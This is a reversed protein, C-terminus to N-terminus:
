FPLRLARRLLPSQQVPFVQGSWYAGDGRGYTGDHRFLSVRALPDAFVFESAPIVIGASYGRLIIRATSAQKTVTKVNASLARSSWGSNPAYNATYWRDTNGFFDDALSDAPAFNNSVDGDADFAFGIEYLNTPDELVLPAATEFFLLLVPGSPPPAKRDLCLTTTGNPGAGCPFNAAFTAGSLTARAYYVIQATVPPDPLKPAVSSDPHLTATLPVQYCQPAPQATGLVDALLPALSGNGGALLAACRDIPSPSVNQCSAASCGQACCIGSCDPPYQFAPVSADCVAKNQQLAQVCRYAARSDYCPCNPLVGNVLITGFSRECTTTSTYMGCATLSKCTQASFQQPFADQRLGRDGDCLFGCLLLASSLAIVSSRKSRSSALSKV